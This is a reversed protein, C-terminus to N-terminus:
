WRNKITMHCRELCLWIFYTEDDDDDQASCTCTTSYRPKEEVANSPVSNRGHPVSVASKRPVSNRRVEEVGLFRPKLCVPSEVPLYQSGFESGYGSSAASSNRSLQPTRKEIIDLDNSQVDDGDNCHKTIVSDRHTHPENRHCSCDCDSFELVLKSTYAQSTQSLGIKRKRQRKTVMSLWPHSLVDQITYRTYTNPDLMNSILDKVAALTM